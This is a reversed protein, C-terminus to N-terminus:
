SNGITLPLGPLQCSVVSQYRGQPKRSARRALFADIIQRIETQVESISRDARVVKIRGREKRALATYGRRVRQQFALGEAEFRTRRSNRHNERRSARKLAVRPDIDLVITLDPQTGRCVIRDIQRVTAPGLKRGYGQYAFSSDNYRDSVVLRGRALAPRVVEDLLQARAAYMLALETLGTPSCCTTGRTAGRADAVGPLLMRRIQEGVRTGGPERTATVRYGKRLLHRVLRRSQTSKGAGDIGELTIFIGRKASQIM